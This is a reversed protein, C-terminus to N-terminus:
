AVQLVSKGKLGKLGILKMIATHIGAFFTPRKFYDAPSFIPSSCIKTALSRDGNSLAKLYENNLLYTNNELFPLGMGGLMKSIEKEADRVFPPSYKSLTKFSYRFRHADGKSFPLKRISIEAM